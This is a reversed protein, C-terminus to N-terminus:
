GLLATLNSNNCGTKLLFHSFTGQKGRAFLLALPGVDHEIIVKFLM